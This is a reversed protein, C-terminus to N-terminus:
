LINLNFTPDVLSSFPTETSLDKLLIFHPTAPSLYINVTTGPTASRTQYYAERVASLLDVFNPSVNASERLGTVNLNIIQNSPVKALCTGTKADSDM